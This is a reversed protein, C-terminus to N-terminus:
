STVQKLESVKSNLFAVCNDWNFEKPQYLEASIGRAQLRSVIEESTGEKCDSIFEAMSYPQPKLFKGSFIVTLFDKLPNSSAPSVENQYIVDKVKKGEPIAAPVSKRPRGRVKKVETAEVKDWYQETPSKKKRTATKAM